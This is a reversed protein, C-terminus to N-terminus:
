AKKNLLPNVLSFWLWPVLALLISTPYGYPLQPSERKNELIQYKKSAKYHHDSHRTLEYLVIRGIFHNSNWSHHSQVREYRGSPLKNRLLGYHEIYNITELFLFSLIGIIVALFLGYLGFFSYVVFLYALEFITYYLMDNKFSFFRSNKIKLLQLQLRWASIYQGIVSTFWFSYVTQNFKATAPDKPTAVNNHHGFNHEIYFHMYLCPLYLLKSLCREIFSKRHGLEHGVNIANTALLIGLSLVMGVTEFLDLELQNLNFLGLILLGFVFPINLYLLIDFFTNSLKNQVESKTYEEKSDVDKFILELTPIFIFAYIPTAYTFFGESTISVLTAVPITYAFLYKLDNTIM